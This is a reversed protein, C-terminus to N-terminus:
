ILCVPTCSIVDLRYGVVTAQCYEVVAKYLGVMKPRHEEDLRNWNLESKLNNDNDILDMIYILNPNESMKKETIYVYNGHGTIAFYLLIKM